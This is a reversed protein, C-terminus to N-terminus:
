QFIDKFDDVNTSQTASPSATLTNESEAASASMVNARKLTTLDFTVSEPNRGRFDPKELPINNFPIRSFPINLGTSRISALGRQSECSDKSLISTVRELQSNLNTVLTRFNELEKAEEITLQCRNKCEERGKVEAGGRFDNRLENGRAEVTTAYLGLIVLLAFLLFQYSVLKPM